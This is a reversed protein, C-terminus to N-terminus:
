QRSARIRRITLESLALADTVGRRSLDIMAKALSDCLPEDRDVLALKRVANNFALEIVHRQEPTLDNPLSRTFAM